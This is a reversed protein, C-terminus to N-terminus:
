HDSRCFLSILVNIKTLWFYQNTFLARLRRLFIVDCMTDM